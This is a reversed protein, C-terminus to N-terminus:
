DACLSSMSLLLISRLEILFWSFSENEVGDPLPFAQRSVVATYCAGVPPHVLWMGTTVMREHGGSCLRVSQVLPWPFSTQSCVGGESSYMAAGQEWRAREKRLVETARRTNNTVVSLVYHQNRLPQVHIPQSFATERPWGIPAKDDCGSTDVSPRGQAALQQAMGSGRLSRRRIYRVDIPHVTASTLLM